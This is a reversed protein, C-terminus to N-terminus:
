NIITYNDINLIKSIKDWGHETIRNTHKLISEKEGTTPNTIKSSKLQFCIVSSPTVNHVIRYGSDRTGSMKLLQGVKVIGKYIDGKKQNEEKKKLYRAHNKEWIIRSEEISKELDHKEIQRFEEKLKTRDSFNLKKFFEIVETLDKM